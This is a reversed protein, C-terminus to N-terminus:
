SLTKPQSFALSLALSDTRETSFSTGEAPLGLFRSILVRFVERNERLPLGIVKGQM